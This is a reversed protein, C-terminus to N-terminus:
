ACALRLEPALRAVAMGLAESAPVPRGLLYGQVTDCGLRRVITLQPETEIGEIVVQIDLGHALSILAKTLSAANTDTATDRVFSRDIKM